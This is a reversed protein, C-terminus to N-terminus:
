TFAMDISECRRILLSDQCRLWSAEGQKEQKHVLWKALNLLTAPKQLISGMSPKWGKYLQKSRDKFIMMAMKLLNGGRRKECEVMEFRGYGAHIYLTLTYAM